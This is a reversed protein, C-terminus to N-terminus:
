RKERAFVDMLEAGQEDFAKLSVPAGAKARLTARSKGSADSFDLTTEGDQTMLMARQTNQDGEAQLVIAALKRAPDVLAVLGEGGPFDLGWGAQGNDFLGFGAREDGAADNVMLGTAPSVRPNVKGGMQPGGVNGLQLRDAGDAGLVILGNTPDKRKREPVVPVPAGLLIRPHGQEDEIVLGRARLVTAGVPRGQPEASARACAYSAIATVGILALAQYSRLRRELKAVREELTGTTRSQM